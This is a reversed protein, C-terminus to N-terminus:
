WSARSLGGRVLHVLDVGCVGARAFDVGLAVSIRSDGAHMTDCKLLQRCESGIVEGAGLWINGYGSVRFRTRGGGQTDRLPFQVALDGGADIARSIPRTLYGLHGQPRKTALMWPRDRQRLGEVVAHQVHM